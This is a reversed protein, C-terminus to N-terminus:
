GFFRFLAEESSGGPDYAVDGAGTGIDLVRMGHALRAQVLFQRTIPDILRAQRQLRQLERDSHGMVYPSAGHELSEVLTEGEFSRGRRALKNEPM